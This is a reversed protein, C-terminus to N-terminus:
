YNLTVEWTRTEFDCPIFIGGFGAKLIVANPDSIPDAFSADALMVSFGMVGEDVEGYELISYGYQESNWVFIQDGVTLWKALDAVTTDIPFPNVIPKAYGDETDECTMDITATGSKEVEGAVTPKIELDLPLMVACDGKNLTISEVPDAFSADALMVSFGMVGADIEGFEYINYGYMLNDFIFIQDGVQLDTGFFNDTIVYAGEEGAMNKFNVGIDFAYDNEDALNLSHQQYGVLNASTIATADAFLSGCLAAVAVFMLKKM